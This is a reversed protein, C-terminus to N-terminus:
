QIDTYRYRDLIQCAFSRCHCHFLYGSGIFCFDIDYAAIICLQWEGDIVSCLDTVGVAYQRDRLRQVDHCIDEIHFRLIM